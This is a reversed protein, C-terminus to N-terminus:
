GRLTAIGGNGDDGGIGGQGLSFALAHGSRGMVTNASGGNRGMRRPIAVQDKGGASAAPCEGRCLSLQALDAM